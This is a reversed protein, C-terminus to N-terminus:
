ENIGGELKNLFLGEFAFAFQEAEVELPHETYGYAVCQEAYGKFCSSDESHQMYHKFEHLLVHITEKTSNHLHTALVIERTSPKYYGLREQEKDDEIVTVREGFMQELLTVM